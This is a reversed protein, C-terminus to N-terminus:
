MWLQEIPTLGTKQKHMVTFSFWFHVYIDLKRM